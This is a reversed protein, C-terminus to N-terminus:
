SLTFTFTAGAGATGEARIDGGHRRVIRRVTALGIGTGEFEHMGHLRQFAGFLKDVHAMDFGAGDDRVFFAPRGGESTAGMYIHAQRQKATFKWANGLLNELVVRLLGPDAHARMGPEIVVDVDRAPQDKRLGRIVAEAMASMDCDELHMASRTMRSLDLLDDILRSMRQSAQRVRQLYGKGQEGLQAAHDDMVALSFGDIARLPARLDHSVSYSFSELETNAAQLEAARRRLDANLRTIEEEARKRETIDVCSLLMNELGRAPAPYSVRMLVTIQEGALTLFPMEGEYHSKGEVLALLVDRASPLSEPLFITDRSRAFEDRSEAGFLELGEENIDALRAHSILAFVQEPQEDLYTRFDTVGGARLEDLARVLATIDEEWIPVAACQFMAEYREESRRLADEAQKRETIDRGLGQYEIIEGADDLIVRNTWSNWRVAGGPLVVRHEYSVVPNEPSLSAFMRAVLEMDEELVVPLFSHAMFEEVSRGFYRCLAENVFTVTGDALFRSVMETHDEVIAKYRAESARLAGEGGRLAEARWLAAQIALGLERPQLTSVIREGPGAGSHDGPQAPPAAHTLEEARAAVYVVPVGFARALAAQGEYAASAQGREQALVILALDIILLDPGARRPLSQAVAQTAEEATHVLAFLGHGLARLCPEIVQASLGTGALVLIEASRNM